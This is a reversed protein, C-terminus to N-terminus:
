DLFALYYAAMLEDPLFLALALSDVKKGSEMSRKIMLAVYITRIKKDLLSMASEAAKRTNWETEVLFPVELENIKEELRQNFRAVSYVKLYDVGFIEGATEICAKFFTSYRNNVEKGYKRKYDSKIKKYLWEEKKNQAEFDSSIGYSKHLEEIFIKRRKIYAPIENKVFAFAVGDYVGMTKMTDLYGLRINRMITANDFVLVPGLDWYCRIMTLDKAQAFTHKRVVGVAELDVAIIREAGKKLALEVPLNDYYGGDIFDYGEIKTSKMAPFLSSSALLYDNIQGEKIDEKYIELPKLTKKDVAVIGCEIPSERIITEDMYQDLLQKLPYSDTGGQKAYDVFFQKLVLKIKKDMPLTEDLDIALVMSTKIQKWLNLANEFDNITILAANLAGVSTGTVIDISVDLENLAQWVGIQYSGRSGGGGLVLATKKM